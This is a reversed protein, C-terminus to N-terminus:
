NPPADEKFIFVTFIVATLTLMTAFFYKMSINDKSLPYYSDITATIADRWAMSGIFLLAAILAKILEKKIKISALKAQEKLKAKTEEETLRKIHTINKPRVFSM